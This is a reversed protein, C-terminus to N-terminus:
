RYRSGTALRPGLSAVPTPLFACRDHSGGEPFIGVGGGADFKEFVDRYMQQNNVRPIRKYAAGRQKNTTNGNSKANQRAARAKEMAKQPDGAHDFSPPSALFLLTDSTVEAVRAAQFAMPGDTLM